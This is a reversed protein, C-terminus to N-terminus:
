YLNLSLFQVYLTYNVMSSNFNDRYCESKKMEWREAIQM